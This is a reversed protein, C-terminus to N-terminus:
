YYIPDSHHYKYANCPTDINSVWKLDRYDDLYSECPGVVVTPDFPDKYAISCMFGMWPETIAYHWVYYGNIFEPRTKQLVDRIIDSMDDYSTSVIFPQVCYKRDGKYKDTIVKSILECMGRHYKVHYTSELDSIIEDLDFETDPIKLMSFRNSVPM